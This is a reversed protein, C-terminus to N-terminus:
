EGETKKFPLHNTSQDILSIVSRADELLLEPHTARHVREETYWPLGDMLGGRIRDISAQEDRIFPESTTIGVIDFGLEKGYQKITAELNNLKM